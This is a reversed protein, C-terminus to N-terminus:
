RAHDRYEFKPSNCFHEKWATYTLRIQHAAYNFSLQDRKSGQEVERWWLENLKKVKASHRRLLVGSAILGSHPPYGNQSYRYVHHIITQPDDKQYFIAAGAEQYICDRDPHIFTAIDHNALDAEVLENLDCKISFNADM